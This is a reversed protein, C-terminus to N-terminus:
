WKGMAARLAMVSLPAAGEERSPSMCLFQYTRGAVDPTHDSLPYRWRTHFSLAAYMTEREGRSLFTLSDGAKFFACVITEVLDAPLDNGQLDSFSLQAVSSREFELLTFQLRVLCGGIIDDFRFPEMPRFLAGPLQKSEPKNFPAAFATARMRAAIASLDESM